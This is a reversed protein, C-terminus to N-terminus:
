NIVVSECYFSNSGIKLCVKGSLIIGIIFMSVHNHMAYSHTSNRLNIIEIDLSDDLSRMGMGSAGSWLCYVEDYDDILMTGINM